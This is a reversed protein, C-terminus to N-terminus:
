SRTAYVVLCACEISCLLVGGCFYADSCHLRALGTFGMQPLAERKPFQARFGPQSLAAHCGIRRPPMM